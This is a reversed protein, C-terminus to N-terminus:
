SRGRGRQWDGSERAALVRRQPDPPLAFKGMDNIVTHGANNGGNFRAVVVADEALYDVIKGKGEDGWQAGLVACVPM